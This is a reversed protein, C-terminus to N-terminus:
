ATSIRAKALVISGERPHANYGGCQTHIDKVGRLILHKLQDKELQFRAIQKHNRDYHEGWHEGLIAKGFGAKTTSPSSERSNM